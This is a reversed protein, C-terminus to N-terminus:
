FIGEVYIKRQLSCFSLYLRQKQLAARGMCIVATIGSFCPLPRLLPSCAPAKPHKTAALVLCPILHPYVSIGLCCYRM